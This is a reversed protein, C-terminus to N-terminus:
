KVQIKLEFNLNRFVDHLCVELRCFLSDRSFPVWSFEVFLDESFLYKKNNGKKKAGYFDKFLNMNKRMNWRKVIFHIKIKKKLYKKGYSKKKELCLQLSHWM